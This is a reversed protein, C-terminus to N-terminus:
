HSWHTRKPLASIAGPVAISAVAAASVPGCVQEEASGAGPEAVAVAAAASTGSAVTDPGPMPTGALEAGAAREGVAHGVSHSASKPSATPPQPATDDYREQQAGRHSSLPLSPVPPGSRAAAEGGSDSTATAAASTPLETNPATTTTPGDHFAMAQLSRATDRILQRLLQEPLSSARLPLVERLMRTRRQELVSLAAIRLRGWNM